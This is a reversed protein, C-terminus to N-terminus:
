QDNSKGKTHKRKYKSCKKNDLCRPKINHHIVGEINLVTSPYKRNCIYCKKDKYTDLKNLEENDM